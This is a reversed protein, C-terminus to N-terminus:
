EWKAYQFAAIFFKPYYDREKDNDRWADAYLEAGPRHNAEDHQHWKDVFM